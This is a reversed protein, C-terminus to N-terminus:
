FGSFSSCQLVMKWSRPMSHLHYISRLYHKPRRKRRSFRQTSVTHALVFYFPTCVLVVELICHRTISMFKRHKKNIHGLIHFYCNPGNGKRERKNTVKVQGISQALSNASKEKHTGQILNKDFRPLNNHLTITISSPFSHDM